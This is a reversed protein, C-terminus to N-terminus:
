RTLGLDSLVRRADEYQATFYKLSERSSMYNDEWLNAELDKKWAETRVLKALADDWYAVQPPPMGAPGILGRFNDSVIDFGQEKWTPVTALVGQGRHPASMAILRVAGSKLHPVLLSASSAVVDIHGGLLAAASEASSKFVATRIKRIDGGAARAVLAAAVHNAGGLSTGVAISLSQVDSSLRAVLDKGNAIPSDANVGFAVYESNLQAIATFDTFTYASKGTIHNSLLLATAVEVCYGDAPRQALYALAINGGGGPKNSVSVPADLLRTEQLVKQILRATLDTG